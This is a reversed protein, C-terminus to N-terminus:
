RWPCIYPSTCFSFSMAGTKAPAAEAAAELAEDSADFTLIEEDAQDFATTKKSM